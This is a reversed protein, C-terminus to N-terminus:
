DQGPITNLGKKAEALFGGLRGLSPTPLLCDDELGPSPRVVPEGWKRECHLQVASVPHM